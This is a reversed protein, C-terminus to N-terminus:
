VARMVTVRGERNAPLKEEVVAGDLRQEGRVDRQEPRQRRREDPLTLERVMEEGGFSVLREHALLHPALSAHCPAHFPAARDGGSAHRNRGGM